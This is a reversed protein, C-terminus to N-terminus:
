IANSKDRKKLVIQYYTMGFADRASESITRWNIYKLLINSFRVFYGLCVLSNAVMELFRYLSLYIDLYESIDYKRLIYLPNKLHERVNKRYKDQWVCGDNLVSLRRESSSSTFRLSSSFV